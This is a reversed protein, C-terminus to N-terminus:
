VIHIDRQFFFIQSLEGNLDEHIQPRGAQRLMSALDGCHGLYLNRRVIIDVRSSGKERPSPSEVYTATINGANDKEIFQM